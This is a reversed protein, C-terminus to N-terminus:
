GALPGMPWSYGLMKVTPAASAPDSLNGQSHSTGQRVSAQVHLGTKNTGREPSFRAIGHERAVIEFYGSSADLTPVTTQHTCTNRGLVTDPVGPDYEHVYFTRTAGGGTDLAHVNLYLDLNYPGAVLNAGFEATWSSVSTTGTTPAFYTFAGLDVPPGYVNGQKYPFHGKGNRLRLGFQIRASTGGGLYAAGVCVAAGTGPTVNGKGVTEPLSLAASPEMKGNALSPAIHSWVLLGAHDITGTKGATATAVGSRSMRFGQDDKTVLYCYLWTPSTVGILALTARDVSESGLDTTWFDSIPVTTRFAGPVGGAVGRVNAAYKQPGTTPSADPTDWDISVGDISTTPASRALADSLLLRVDFVDAATISAAGNVVRVAAIPLRGATPAPLGAGPTGAKVYVTGEGHEMVSQASGSPVFKKLTGNWTDVIVSSDVVSTPDGEVLDWRTSGSANAGIAANSTSRKNVM